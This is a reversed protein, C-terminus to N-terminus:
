KSYGFSLFDREYLKYVQELSKDSYADLYNKWLNSAKTQAHKFSGLHIGHYACDDFLNELKIINMGDEYFNVQPGFHNRTYDVNRNIYVPLKKMVFTEFDYKKDISNYYYASLIREYPRRVTIYKKYTEHKINNIKYFQLDAHHLYVNSKRCLGYMIDYHAELPSIDVHNKGLLTEMLVYEVSTGGTKGPHMFLIKHDHFIM